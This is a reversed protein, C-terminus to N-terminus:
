KTNFTHRKGGIEPRINWIAATYADQHDDKPVQTGRECVYTTAFNVTPYGELMKHLTKSVAGKKAKITVSMRGTGHLNMLLSQKGNRREPNFSPSALMKEICRRKGALIFMAECGFNHAALELRVCDWVVDAVSVGKEDAWKTEVCLVPMGNDKVVFDLQPQRGAIGPVALVPHDVEAQINGRVNHSLIQAIPMALYRECFLSERGALKEFKLWSSIGESIAERINKQKM